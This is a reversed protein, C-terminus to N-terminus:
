KKTAQWPWTPAQPPWNPPVATPSSAWTPAESPWDKPIVTLAEKIEEDDLKRDGLEESIRSKLKAQDKENLYVPIEFLEPQIDQIDIINSQQLLPRRQPKSFQNKNKLRLTTQQSKTTRQWPWTPAESPWNPPIVTQTSLELIITKKTTKKLENFRTDKSSIIKVDACGMFVEQIGCGVCGKKTIPDINWFNATHYKWQFVCNECALNDPLKIKTNILGTLGPQVPIRTRAFNDRLLNQNLCSQSADTKSNDINCIRFEFFGKHNSTIQVTVDIVQGQSYTRVALGRYYKGGKEFQKEGNYDEGCIGCRGKNLIAYSNFGGCFMQNDFFYIPFKSSDERWASSRAPPDLLRGHSYVSIFKVFILSLLFKM